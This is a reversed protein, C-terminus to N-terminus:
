DVLLAESGIPQYGAALFARLSAANGPSIQAWLQSGPPILARAALALRRGHGQGRHNDSVEIACELRGTLGRGTLVVGGYQDVWARVDDRYRLARQIRPHSQDIVESLGEVAGLLEAADEGADPGVQGLGTCPEAEDPGTRPVAPAPRTASRGPHPPAGPGTRDPGTRPEPRDQGTRTAARGPTGPEARDTDTGPEAHGPRTTPRVPCPLSPALLLADIANVQRGTRKELATLFPPNLPASLDGAPIHEAVWAPEVDAAIVIHGTFAVVASERASPAPVVTLGLDPAPFTGHEVARLIDALTRM